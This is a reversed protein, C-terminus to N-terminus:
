GSHLWPICPVESDWGLRLGDVPAPARHLGGEAAASCLSRRLLSPPQFPPRGTRLLM